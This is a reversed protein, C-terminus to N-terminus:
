KKVSKNLVKERAAKAKEATSKEKKPAKEEMKVNKQLSASYAYVIENEDNKDETYKLECVYLRKLTKLKNIATPKLGAILLTDEKTRNLKLGGNQIDLYFTSNHPAPDKAYILVMVEGKDNEVLEYVDRPSFSVEDM